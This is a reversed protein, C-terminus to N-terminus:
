PATADVIAKNFEFIPNEMSLLHQPIKKLDTDPGVCLCSNKKQIQSYLQEYTM